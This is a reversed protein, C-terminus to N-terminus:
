GAFKPDNVRKRDGPRAQIVPWLTLQASIKTLTLKQVIFFALLIVANELNTWFRYKKLNKYPHWHMAWLKPPYVQPWLRVQPFAPAAQM